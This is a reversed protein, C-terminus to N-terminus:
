GAHKLKYNQNERTSKWRKMEEPPRPPGQPPLGNASQQKSLQIHNKQFSRKPDNQISPDDFVQMDSDQSHKHKIPNHLSPPPPNM